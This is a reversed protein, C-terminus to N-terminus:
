FLRIIYYYDSIYCTVYGFLWSCTVNGFLAHSKNWTVWRSPQSINDLIWEMSCNTCEHDECVRVPVSTLADVEAGTWTRM